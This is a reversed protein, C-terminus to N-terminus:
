PLFPSCILAATAKLHRHSFFEDMTWWGRRRLGPSSLWTCACCVFFVLVGVELFLTKFLFFVSYQTYFYPAPQRYFDVAISFLELMCSHIFVFPLVTPLHYFGFHFADHREKIPHFRAALLSEGQLSRHWSPRADRSLELELVTKKLGSLQSLRVCPKYRAWTM